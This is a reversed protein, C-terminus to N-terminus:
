LTSTKKSLTDSSLTDTRLFLAVRTFTLRACYMGIDHFPLVIDKNFLMGNSSLARFRPM